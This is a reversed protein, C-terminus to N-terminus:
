RVAEGVARTAVLRAALFGLATALLPQAGELSTLLLVAGMLLIRGGLLGVAAAPRGDEALLKASHWVARFYLAGLAGGLVFHVALSLIMAGLSLHHFALFSM